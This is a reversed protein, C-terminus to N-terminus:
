TSIRDQKEPLYKETLGQNGFAIERAVKLASIVVDISEPKSFYMAIDERPYFTGRSIRSLDTSEDYGKIESPEQNQYIIMAQPASATGAVSVRVSVDGTGFQIKNLNKKVM